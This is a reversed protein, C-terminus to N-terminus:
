SGKRRKWRVRKGKRANTTRNSDYFGSPKKEVWKVFKRIQDTKLLAEITNYKEALEKETFVSHIKQHCIRHLIVVEGNKGGKSRPLLHHRNADMPHDITRKCLPCITESNAM